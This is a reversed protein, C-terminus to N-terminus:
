HELRFLVKEGRGRMKLNAGPLGLPGVQNRLVQSRGLSAAFIRPKVFLHGHYEGLLRCQAHLFRHYLHQFCRPVQRFSHLLLLPCEPEATKSFNICQARPALFGRKPALVQRLDGLVVALKSLKLFVNRAHAGLRWRRAGSPKGSM